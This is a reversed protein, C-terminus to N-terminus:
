IDNWASDNSDDSESDDVMDFRLVENNNWQPIIETFQNSLFTETTNTYTNIYSVGDTATTEINPNNQEETYIKNVAKGLLVFVASLIQPM